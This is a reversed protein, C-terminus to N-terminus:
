KLLNAIGISQVNYSDDLAIVDAIRQGILASQGQQGLLAFPNTRCMQFATEADVGYSILNRLADAMTLHAGALAGETNILKGDKLTITQDYLQFTEPGGVTAMADSVAIMRHPAPRGRMSLTIMAPAVHIGDAIITCYASSGIAAGTVGPERSEMPSMANYLHTFCTAGADLLAKAEAATANSHGISVVAGMDCLTTVDAPSAAEPALTILTPIQTARLRAIQAITQQDIPRIHAAAHTGRKAISIHPGEIHIGAFGPLDKSAIAATVAAELVQPADTIVTPLLATTGFQRHASLITKIGAATPSTNLLVGGGGNVQLDFFGPSLTGSHHATRQDAPELHTVVGDTIGIAYNNLLSQGDFVQDATVWKTM